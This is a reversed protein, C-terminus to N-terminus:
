CPKSNSHALTAMSECASQEYTMTLVQVTQAVMYRPRFHLAHAYAIKMSKWITNGCDREYTQASVFGEAM